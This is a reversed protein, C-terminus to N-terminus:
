LAKQAQNDTGSLSNKHMHKQRNSKDFVTLTKLIIKMKSTLNRNKERIVKQQFIKRSIKCIKFYEGADGTDNALTNREEKQSNSNSRSHVIKKRSLNEM